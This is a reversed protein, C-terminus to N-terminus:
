SILIGNLSGEQGPRSTVKVKGLKTDLITGKTIIGRRIFHRNAPSEIISTVDTQQTKKTKPDIVNVKNVSILTQKLDGGRVNKTKIKKGSLKTFTPSSGINSLKKKELARYLSGTTKRRSRKQYITMNYAFFLNEKYLKQKKITLKIYNIVPEESISNLGKSVNFSALPLPIMTSKFFPFCIMPLNFDKSWCTLMTRSLQSSFTLPSIVLFSPVTKMLPSVIIKM